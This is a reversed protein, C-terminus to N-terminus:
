SPAGPGLVYIYIHIPVQNQHLKRTSREKEINLSGKVGPTSPHKWDCVYCMVWPLYSTVWVHLVSYCVTGCQVVSQVVSIKLDQFDSSNAYCDITSNIFESHASLNNQFDQAQAAKISMITNIDKIHCTCLATHFIEMKTIDTPEKVILRHYMHSHRIVFYV